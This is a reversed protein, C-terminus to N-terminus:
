DIHTNVGALSLCNEAVMEGGLKWRLDCIQGKEIEGWKGKLAYRINTV